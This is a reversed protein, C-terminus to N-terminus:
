KKNGRPDSSVQLRVSGPDAKVRFSTGSKIVCAANEELAFKKGSEEGSLIEVEAKGEMQHLFCESAHEYKPVADSEMLKEYKAPDDGGIVLVKFEKDPHASEQGHNFFDLTSEGCGGCDLAARNKAIWDKANVPDPVTDVTNVKVPREAEPVVSTESPKNSAKEESAHFAKVVPVLDRGLDECTFFKEYLIESPSDFDTYWRLGDKEVMSADWDAFLKHSYEHDPGYYRERELVLGLGEPDPRQPSHPVCSPLLFFHGAPIKMFKLKNQQITPLEMTGKM